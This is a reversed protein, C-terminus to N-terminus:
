YDYRDSLHSLIEYYDKNFIRDLQGQSRVPKFGGTFPGSEYYVEDTGLLLFLGHETIKMFKRKCEGCLPRDGSSHCFGNFDSIQVSEETEKKCKMCNEM